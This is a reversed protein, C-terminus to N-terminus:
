NSAPFGESSFCNVDKFVDQFNSQFNDLVWPISYVGNAFALAEELGKSVSEFASM